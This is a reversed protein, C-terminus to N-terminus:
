NLQRFPSREDNAAEFKKMTPSHYTNVNEKVSDSLEGDGKLVVGLKKKNFSNVISGLIRMLETDEGSFKSISDDLGEIFNLLNERESSLRKVDELLNLNERKLENILADSKNNNSSQVVSGLIRMLETDEGSFKGISDDLGEMFNLLNERESCLKKVDELLNQNERKLENILVDSTTLKAELQKTLRKMELQKMGLESEIKLAEQKSHSLSKEQLELKQQINSIEGDMEVIMLKKEEIELIALTEAASIKEWAELYLNIEAQKEALQSSFSNLSSNFKQELSGVLQWLGDIKQNKEEVMQILDEKEHEFSQEAGIHTLLACELERRLSEQELWGIERQLDELIKDKQRTMQLVKQKETESSMATKVRANSIAAELEKAKLELSQVQEKLNSVESDREEILLLLLGNQKKIAEGAEVQALLSAELEKRLEQSEELDAKLREVISKWIWLEFEMQHGESTKEILESNAVDLADCIETFKRKMDSEMLLMQEELYLRSRSSEHLLEKYRELEKKMQVYQEEIHNLSEVRRSLSAVKEHEEVLRSNATDLADSIERVKEKSDSEMQSAQEKLHLQCRSSEALMDKYRELEKQMFLHQEELHDLSEVRRALCAAKEHKEALEFRTADLADSVARLKEKSESEIQLAQEKLQNQCRSSEEFMEKYKELEKQMQSRQEEVYSLSEVVSSLSAAKEREKALKFNATDLADCVERLKKNYEIEMQLAKERLHNQCRSSEELLEKYRDLEKQMLLGQEEVLEFSEIRRLLSATKEREETINKQAKALDATKMELQKMLVSAREEREKNHFDREGDVLALKLSSESLGAKLLLLMVSLEENQMKLQLTLSHCGELEMKLEEITADKREAKSRYDNLELDMKELQSSWEAEKARLSASCDRHMQEVSKLKNRLKVLSSTSGAKHIQAEQLEKLSALLEQNEQELKGAQYEIEKQFMEKTSLSHRLAAIEKDRQETLCELQSKADQYEAFTNENRTKFESVQVELYKRRSEEQALAQNCLQLRNQLDASIRKHSDLNNQLSCIEDLLKSMEQEWEKKCARFQDLLKEHAEELHKFQEKKWKLQDQVKRSEEELKLLVDDRERLEKSTKAKREAELCKKQSTALHGKLAEIEAKFVNIKQGQDINKENAEDLALVLGRNEEEWKRCKEDCDVRLKDNAASLCKIISEKEILSCKLDQSLRKVELMQEEKENLEQAQKEVKKSAEYIKLLQENHSKKLNECLDARSKCDARLKENEAKVEELEEYIREM